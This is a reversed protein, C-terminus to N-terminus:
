LSLFCLVSYFWHGRFHKPRGALWCPPSESLFCAPSLGGPGAASTLPLWSPAAGVQQLPYGSCTTSSRWCWISGYEGSPGGPCTSAPWWMSCIARCSLPACHAQPKAGAQERSLLSSWSVRILVVDAAEIAVDTGTGIAIGVDAQALAPSDNVGDGVMAVKRGASQLEQVKAVKHSPLVEAFVKSIGVQFCLPLATLVGILVRRRASALSGIASGGAVAWGAGRTGLGVSGAGHEWGLARRPTPGTEWCSRWM